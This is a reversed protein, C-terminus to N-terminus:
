DAPRLRLFAPVCPGMAPVDISQGDRFATGRGRGNFWIENKRIALEGFSLQIKNHMEREM